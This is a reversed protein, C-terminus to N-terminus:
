LCGIQGQPLGALLAFSLNGSFGQGPSQSDHSPRPPLAPAAQSRKTSQLVPVDRVGVHVSDWVLSEKSLAFPLTAVLSSRWFWGPPLGPGSLLPPLVRWEVQSSARQPFRTTLPQALRGGRSGQCCGERRRFAVRGFPPILPTSFISPFAFQTPLVGRGGTPRAAPCGLERKRKVDLPRRMSAVIAASEAAM